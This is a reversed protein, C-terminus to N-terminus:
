RAAPPPAERCLPRASPQCAGQRRTSATRGASHPRCRRFYYHRRRHPPGPRPLIGHSVLGEPCGEHLRRDAGPGLDLGRDLGKAEALHVLGALKGVVVSDTPHEPAHREQDGDLALGPLPRLAALVLDPASTRGLLMLPTM